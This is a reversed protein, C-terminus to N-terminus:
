YLVKGEGKDKVLQEFHAVIKDRRQMVGKVQPNNLFGKTTAALEKGDLQRLKELLNRDCRELNRPERLDPRPRFARTFDIMYIKWDEGMLVNTLNPDTEYVLEHFVRVRHMQQNWAEQDPPELNKRKRDVEDMKAPLWWAMSGSKGSWKRFVTVPMMHDLGLLKSLQYAAINCGYFDRFNLEVSGDSFQRTPFTEDISQFHADHTLNGLRMTLRYPSTVGKSTHRSNIVEAKLLFNAMEEPTMAPEQAPVAGALLLFALVLGFGCRTIM